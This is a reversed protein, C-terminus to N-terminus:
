SKLTEYYRAIHETVRYGTETAVTREEGEAVAESQASVPLVAGSLVGGGLAAAGKLFSRRDAKHPNKRTQEARRTM